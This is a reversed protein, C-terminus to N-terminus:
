SCVTKKQTNPFQAPGITNILPTHVRDWEKLTM